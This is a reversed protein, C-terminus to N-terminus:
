GIDMGFSITAAILSRAGAEAQDLGQHAIHADGGGPGLEGGREGPPAQDGLM